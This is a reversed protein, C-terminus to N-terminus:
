NGLLMKLLFRFLIEPHLIVNKQFAIAIRFKPIKPFDNSFQTYFILNKLVLPYTIRQFFPM